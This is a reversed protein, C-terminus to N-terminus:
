HECFNFGVDTLEETADEQLTSREAMLELRIEKAEDEDMFYDVNKLVMTFANPRVIPLLGVSTFRARYAFLCCQRCATHKFTM